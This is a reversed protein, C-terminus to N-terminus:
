QKIVLKYTCSCNPHINGAEISEFNVDMTQGDAHITGGQSRFPEEFPVLGEAQIQLCFPCPNDSRVILQKYAKGSLENQTIFQRDAEYQSRTFARNAETRAVTKARNRSVSESFEGSLSRIIDDRSAGKLALERARNYISDSVTSIHSQAVKESIEKIYKNSIADLSYIATLQFESVRSAIVDRGKLSMAIGYFIAIAARLEEKANKKVSLSILDSEKELENKFFTNVTRFDLDTLKNIANAILVRDVNFVVNELSAQQVEVGSNNDEIANVVLRDSLSQTQPISAIRENTPEGLEDIDIEDKVYKQAIEASYGIQLLHDMVKVEIERVERDKKDAEKDVSLPNDVMIKAGNILYDAPYNNRYDQNLAETIWMIKPLIHSEVYIERQVRATDRTVGSQEINMMTKSVGSVSFLEDRNVENVDKLASKDLNIQMDQWKIAGAGNGFLPEGKGHGKVRDVFNHFEEPPLIVDTSLIGSANINNSLAHKTYDNASLLVHQSGRSADVLSYPDHESFPNLEKIEIIMHPPLERTLDGRKEIYGSVEMTDKNIVRKIQYPNLLKFEQIDSLVDGNKGRVALLYFVGELDLYTSIKYWFEYNSFSPSTDILDLYPHVYEDDKTKSVTYLNELALQSTSVARNKISAYGYGKYHDNDSTYTKAWTSPLSSSGTNGYRLFENAITMSNKDLNKTFPLLNKVRDFISM